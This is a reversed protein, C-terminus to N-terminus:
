LRPIEQKGLLVDVGQSLGNKQLVARIILLIVSLVLVGVAEYFKGEINDVGWSALTIVILMIIGNVSEDKIVTM